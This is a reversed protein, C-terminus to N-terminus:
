EVSSEQYAKRKDLTETKSDKSRSMLHELDEESGHFQCQIFEEGLAFLYGAMERPEISLNDVEPRVGSGIGDLVCGLGNKLCLGGGLWLLLRNILRLCGGRLRLDGGHFLM